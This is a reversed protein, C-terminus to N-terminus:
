AGDAELFERIAASLAEPNEEAVHHGSDIGFGRVNDAWNRWIAVPDGYIQEMDDSLSWLCLMPCTVKRGADRDARDHLHDVSLGARYDEIMGHIVHPDHIVEILDDYALRGMLAPSLKDYWALPDALIAREPKAPQAFFFWHYWDRAFKWDARELHEIVPIGDAVVLKRVRDPHDMAMRFATLSGRDHGVVVFNEHELRRMLEVLAEAKARKSSNKSDAADLPQYSRGFGPLDPCVVTYDPSLLDAVKSWTLHTRPHGHLLLVAPGEGGIRVRLSGLGVDVTELSFGEFM